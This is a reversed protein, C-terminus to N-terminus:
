QVLGSVQLQYFSNDSAQSLSLDAKLWVGQYGGPGLTPVPMGSSSSGYGGTVGTPAVTRNAITQTSEHIDELGYTIDDYVTGSSTENVSGSILSQTQHTNQIFVKEYLTLAGTSSSNMDYFPRRIGTEGVPIDAIKNVGQGSITCVGVAVADFSGYLIREYTNTSTVQSTGNLSMSESVISGAASRGALTFTQSTDGAAASYIVMPVASTPDTFTMRIGSTIDGGVLSINDEPMSTAGYIVLNTASLPM